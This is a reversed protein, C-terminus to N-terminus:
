ELSRPKRDPDIQSAEKLNITMLDTRARLIEFNNDAVALECLLITNSLQDFNVIFVQLFTMDNILSPPSSNLGLNVKSRYYFRPVIRWSVEPSENKLESTRSLDFPKASDPVQDKVLPGVIGDGHWRRNMRRTSIFAANYEILYSLLICSDDCLFIFDCVPIVWTQSRFKYPLVARTCRNAWYADFLGSASSNYM